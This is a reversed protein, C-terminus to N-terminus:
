SKLAPAQCVPRVGAAQAQQYAKVAREM